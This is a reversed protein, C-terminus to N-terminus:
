TGECDATKVSFNQVSSCQTTLQWHWHVSIESHNILRSFIAWQIGYHGGFSGLTQWRQRARSQGRESPFWQWVCVAKNNLHSNSEAANNLGSMCESSESQAWSLLFQVPVYSFTRLQKKKIRKLLFICYYQITSYLQALKHWMILRNKISIIFM